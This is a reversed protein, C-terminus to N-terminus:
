NASRSNMLPPISDPHYRVYIEIFLKGDSCYFHNVIICSYTLFPRTTLLVFEDELM